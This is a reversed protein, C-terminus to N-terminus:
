RSTPSPPICLFGTLRRTPRSGAVIRNRMLCASSRTTRASSCTWGRHCPASPYASCRAIWSSPDSSTRCGRRAASRRHRFSSTTTGSGSDSGAPVILSSATIGPCVGVSRGGCRGVGVLHREPGATHPLRSAYAPRIVSRSNPMTHSISGAVRGSRMRTRCWIPTNLRAADDNKIGSLWMPRAVTDLMATACSTASIPPRDIAHRLALSRLMSPKRRSRRVAAAYPTSSNRKTYPSRGSVPLRDSSRVTRDISSSAFRKALRSCPRAPSRTPTVERSM